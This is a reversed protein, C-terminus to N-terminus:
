RKRISVSPDGIKQFTLVEPHAQAYGQLGRSDWSERGKVYVAQLHEGTVSKGYTTVARKVWDTERALAEVLTDERPALELDIEALQKRIEDTLVSDRLSQKEIAVLQQQIQLDELAHLRQLIDDEAQSDENRTGADLMQDLAITADM